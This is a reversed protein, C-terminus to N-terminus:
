SLRQKMLAWIAERKWKLKQSLAIKKTQQNEHHHVVLDSSYLVKFGMQHIQEGLFVEEGYLFFPAQLSGGNEWFSPLLIMASGHPSYIYTNKSADNKTINKSKIPRNLKKKHEVWRNLSPSIALLYLGILKLFSIRKAYWRNEEKGDNGLIKPAIMALDQDIKKAFLQEFFDTEFEIDTNCIFTFDPNSDYNLKYVNWLKDVGGLYGLNQEPQVLALELQCHSFDSLSLEGGNNCIYIQFLCEEVLYDRVMSRIFHHVEDQNHYHNVLFLIRKM